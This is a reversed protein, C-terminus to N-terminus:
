STDKKGLPILKYAIGFMAGAVIPVRDCSIHLLVVIQTVAGKYKKIQSHSCIRCTKHDTSCLKVGGMFM